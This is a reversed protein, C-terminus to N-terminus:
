TTSILAAKLVSCIDFNTLGDLWLNWPAIYDFGDRKNGAIRRFIRKMGQKSMALSRRDDKLQGDFDVNCLFALTTAAIGAAVATAYSTSSRSEQSGGKFSFREDSAPYARGANGGENSAGAILIKHASYAKEIAPRRERSGDSVKLPMAIIDVKVIAKISTSSQSEAVKACYIDAEPATRRLLLMELTGHGQEDTDDTDKPNNQDLFNIGEIIPRSEENERERQRSRIQPHDSYFGTDLLAIRVRRLKADQECIRIM